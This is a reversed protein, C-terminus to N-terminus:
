WQPHNIGNAKQCAKLEAIMYNMRRGCEVNDTAAYNMALASLYHGGVHGDLGDWNPYSAAKAPLGAEKRYGALLRDVDYKLLTQINLDRAHKFPGDLLSVEHLPFENPYLRNQACAGGCGLCVSVWLAFAITHKM